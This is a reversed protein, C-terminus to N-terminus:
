QKYIEEVDFLEHQQKIFTEPQAVKVEKELRLFTDINVDNRLQYIEKLNGVSLNYRERILQELHERTARPLKEWKDPSDNDAFSITREPMMVRAFKGGSLWSSSDVSYWPYRRMLVVSTMGFGHFKTKPHRHFVDDLWGILQPSSIPVMGGLAVYQYREAYWDLFRWPEGYHFCPLPKLDNSEIAKQNEMTKTADGIADLVAFVEVKDKISHIFKCYQDIPIDKKQSWASFAGSDVFTRKGQTHWLDYHAKKKNYHYSTLVNKCRDYGKMLISKAAEWGAFYLKM